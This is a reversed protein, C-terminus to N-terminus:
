VTPTASSRSGWVYKADFAIARYKLRTGTHYAYTYAGGSVTLVNKLPRWTVGDSSSQISGFAAGYSGIKGTSTWLRGARVTLTVLRGSRKATMAATSVLRADTSPSNMAVRYAEGCQPYDIGVFKLVGLAPPTGFSLFNDVTLYNGCYETGTESAAEGGWGTATWSLVQYLNFDVCSGTYTAGGGSALHQDNQAIVVRAPLNLNATCPQDAAGASAPSTCAWGTLTLAAATGVAFSKRMMEGDGAGIFARARQGTGAASRPVAGIAVTM